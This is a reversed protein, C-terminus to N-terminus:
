RKRRVREHELRRPIEGAHTTRFYTISYHSVIVGAVYDQNRKEFAIEFADAVVADIISKVDVPDLRFDDGSITEVPIRMLYVERGYQDPKELLIIFNINAYCSQMGKPFNAMDKFLVQSFIQVAKDDYDDLNELLYRVRTINYSKAVGYYGRHTFADRAKPKRFIFNYTGARLRLKKVVKKPIVARGDARGKVYFRQGGISIPKEIPEAEKMKDTREGRQQKETARLKEVSTRPLILGDKGYKTVRLSIRKPM